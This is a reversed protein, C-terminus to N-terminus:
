EQGLTGTVWQIAIQSKQRKTLLEIFKQATELVKSERSNILFLTSEGLRFRQEEGRFLTQFNKYTAEYLTSQTKLNEFENYYARIKNEIELRTLTLDFNTDKIKLKAKQYEGRGESFRLPIGFDIGFKYNNSLGANDFTSLANYGKSLVNARLNLTPLLSQFKLKREIELGELKFDFLKLKPHNVVAIQVLTALDDVALNDNQWNKDPYIDNPLQYPTNNALWLFNSLELSANKLKLSVEGQQFQINQLQTLAEVTDLAAREGQQYSIKVFRYRDQNIAIADTLIKLMQYEKVWNWYVSYAEYLLDNQMLRREAQSMKQLVAAQKLAARRKDMMLNKALPMSIGLYSTQGLSTEPSTFTGTNNEIGTKIEIGYWTPIKLEPNVYAYYEKGNFTKQDTEVYFTPDFGGRASLAEAKARDILINAQKAVPHYQKVIDIFQQASLSSQGFSPTLILNSLLFYLALFRM